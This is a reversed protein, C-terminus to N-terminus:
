EFPELIFPAQLARVATIIIQRPDRIEQGSTLSYRFRSGCFCRDEYVRSTLRVVARGGHLLLRLSNEAIYLTDMRRTGRPLRAQLTGISLHSPAVRHCSPERVLHPSGEICVARHRRPESHSSRHIVVLPSRETLSGNGSSLM